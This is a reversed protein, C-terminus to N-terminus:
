FNIKNTWSQKKWTLYINEPWLVSPNNCHVSLLLLQHTPLHPPTCLAKFYWALTYLGRNWLCSLLKQCIQHGSSISSLIMSLKNINSSAMIVATVAVTSLLCEACVVTIEYLFGYICRKWPRLTLNQLHVWEPLFLQLASHPGGRTPLNLSRLAHERLFKKFKPDRFHWKWRKGCLM